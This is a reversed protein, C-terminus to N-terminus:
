DDTEEDEPENVRHSLLQMASEDPTTRNTRIAGPTM